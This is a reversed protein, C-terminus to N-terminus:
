HNADVAREIASALARISDDNPRVRLSDRAQDFTMKGDTIAKVMEDPLVATHWTVVKGASLSKKEWRDLEVLAKANVQPEPPILEQQTPATPTEPPQTKKSLDAEIMAMQEDNFPYDMKEAAIRLAVDFSLGKMLIDVLNGFSQAQADDDEQFSELREPEFELHYGMKHLIQDNLAAQIIRADPVIVIQYFQRELAKQSTAYAQADFIFQTGLALNIDKRLDETIRLDGLADLGDGIITPKVGGGNFVKWALNRAGRMFRNFWAEIREIEAAPPADDVMLMMAKVAGRQMYDAAWHSIAGSATAALLASALPYSKPAGLEVMPDPLWIYLVNDAPHKESTGTREFQLTGRKAAEADLTVSDPRWYQLGKVAGTRAGKGKYWYSQGTLVLAGETLSLFKYPDPMFGVANKYKDSSDVENDNSDYITFPLDAMAQMRASVSSSVAPVLRAEVDKKANDPTWVGPRTEDWPDIGKMGLTLINETTKGNTM